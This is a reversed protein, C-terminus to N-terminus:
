SWTVFNEGDRALEIWTRGAPVEILSQDPAV